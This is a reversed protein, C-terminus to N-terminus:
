VQSARAMRASTTMPQRDVRVLRQGLSVLFSGVASAVRCGVKTLWGRSDVGAQQLAQRQYVKRELDQSRMDTNLLTSYYSPVNM